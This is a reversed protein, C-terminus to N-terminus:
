RGNLSQLIKLKAATDDNEPPPATPSSTNQPEASSRTLQKLVEEKHAMEAESPMSEGQPAASGGMARLIDKREELPPPPSTPLEESASFDGKLAPFLVFLLAGISLIAFAGAGIFVLRMTRQRALDPDM